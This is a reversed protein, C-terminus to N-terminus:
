PGAENKKYLNGRKKRKQVRVRPLGRAERNDGLAQQAALFEEWQLKHQAVECQAMMDSNSYWCTRRGDRPDRRKFALVRGQRYARHFSNATSYGLRRAIKKAGWFHEIM